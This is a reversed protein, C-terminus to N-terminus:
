ILATTRGVKLLRLWANGSLHMEAIGELKAEGPPKPHEQIKSHRIKLLARFIQEQSSSQRLVPKGMGVESPKKALKESPGSSKDGQGADEGQPLATRLLRKIESAVSVPRAEEHSADGNSIEKRSRKRSSGNINLGPLGNQLPETFTSAFDVDEEIPLGPTSAFDDADSPSIVEESLTPIFGEQDEDEDDDDDDDDDEDDDDDDDDEDDDGEELLDDPVLSQNMLKDAMVQLDNRNKGAAGGFHNMAMSFPLQDSASTVAEVQQMASSHIPAPNAAFLGFPTNLANMLELHAEGAKPQKAPARRVKRKRMQGSRKAGVYGKTLREAHKAIEKLDSKVNQMKSLAVKVDPQSAVSKADGLATMAEEIGLLCDSVCKELSKAKPLAKARKQRPARPVRERVHSEVQMAPVASKM